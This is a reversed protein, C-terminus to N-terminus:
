YAASVAAEVRFRRMPQRTGYTVSRWLWEMPGFRNYRLWIGSTILQGVFVGLGILATPGPALRGFLGLGFGYFIFSFLVSQSLYNSLAMQGFAALLGIMVGKRPYSLWLVVGSALGLALPIFSLGDAIRPPLPLPKGTSASWFILSTMVAGTPTAVLFFAALFGRQKDAEKLVGSRWAAVGLMMLGFTRPLSSLLLPLIFQWAERWRLALIEQFSGHAYIPTSSVAQLHMAKDSPLFLDMVPSFSLAMVPLALCALYKAPLKVLPILMLGCIAYLCLIDGNWILFMHCLGIALLVCFRRAMFRSPLMGSRSVREEQVCAGVGFLFAFVSFAKSEILWASVLDIWVNLAGSHTHFNLLHEFLSVRFDNLLNSWLVGFLALGRLVDLMVYREGRALPALRATVPACDM